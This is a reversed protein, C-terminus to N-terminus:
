TSARLLLAEVTSEDDHLKLTESVTQARSDEDQLFYTGGFSDLL